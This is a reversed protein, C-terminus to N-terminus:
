NDAYFDARGCLRQIGDQEETPLDRKGLNEAKKREYLLM